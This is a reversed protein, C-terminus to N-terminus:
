AATQSNSHADTKFKIRSLDNIVKLNILGTITICIAEAEHSTSIDLGFKAKLFEQALIKKRSNNESNIELVNRWSIAMDKASPIICFKVGSQYAALHIVTEVQTLKVHNYVHETFIYLPHKQKLLKEVFAYIKSLRAILLDKTTTEFVGSEIFHVEDQYVQAIAWGSTSLAQDFGIYYEM